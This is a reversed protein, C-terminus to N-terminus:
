AKAVVRALAVGRVRTALTRGGRMPIARPIAALTPPHLQREAQVANLAPYDDVISPVDVWRPNAAQRLSPIERHARREDLIRHVAVLRQHSPNLKDARVVVQAAAFVELDVGERKETIERM